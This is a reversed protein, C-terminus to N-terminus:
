DLLLSALQERAILEMDKAPVRWAPGDAVDDPRTVYYRYRKTGKKAHTHTM